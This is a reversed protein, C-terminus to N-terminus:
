FRTVSGSRRGLGDRIVGRHDIHGLSRGFGDHISGDSDVAALRQGTGSHIIGDRGISGLRQGTGSHIIGDRRISGQRPGLDVLKGAMFDNRYKELALEAALEFSKGLSAMTKKSFFKENLLMNGLQEM